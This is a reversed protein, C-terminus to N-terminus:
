EYNKFLLQTAMESDVPKSILYGQVFECKLERLQELQANTEVGEAVVDMGLSHALTVIMQVTENHGSNFGLRNVFSRDIKLTDIPFEHLRSLSSYGTGFDDICLGLGLEKLQNLLKTESTAADLICSETIELKLSCSPLETKPLIKEILELLNVQKLQIASVNVNMVLSPAQPFQSLWINLQSCASQLVWQGLEQILGTEEAVPIFEIPSIWGRKPHYWRVLAEFGSLRSTALSIIPQYYLCFEQQEIARRLDNELQLATIMRTQMRRDFVVYCGKGQSKAHYMASDADRLLEEPQQYNMTSLTIGISTGTRVEYDNLLFPETLQEQIRQAVLTAEQPNEMEELLIAFEDGGFRAVTDTSRVCTQLRRAVSKLLEDGVLHGFSDNVVKFRDLDLFLLAYLYKSHREALKIAHELMKILWARNPLGTLSDHVADHQLQVKARVLQIQAEQLEQLSKELQNAKNGERIESQKLNHYLTANELAIAAQSCLINLVKLRDGPFAGRTLNNELYLIGILKSQNLIPTCLVSVPQNKIIYPDAAFNTESTANDLIIPEFTRGVSNIISVPIEQSSAVPISQLVTVDFSGSVFKAEILLNELKESSPLLLYGKEAGANEVIVRILTSLLKDLQIEKSIAQSAKLVTALDLTESSETNRALFIGANQHSLKETKIPQKYERNPVLTLLEPYNKSLDQVKATAGWRAYNYYADKLYSRAIKEKGWELYFTAALQQALAEENIYENERALKIARDYDDMAEIYQGLVRHREAEVLYFKHLHNMPSTKAWKKMKRQNANVKKMLRKQESQPASVYVALQALSDYFHFIPVSLTAIEGDIYKEAMAANKVAQSYQGFLYCLILKHWYLDFLASTHNAKLLLPLMIKEDYNEGSLCCPNETVELLNLVVQRYLKHLRLVTEQRLNSIVDSYTAMKRDLETLERGIFYSHYCHMYAAYAAFELDGTELGSTYAELLPKLGERVHEQWHRIFNNFVMLTRAKLEKANFKEVLNLALKGFQYGAKVDGLVGCLIVGYGAYGYTSMAANGHKVSWTVGKFTLFPTLEPVASFSSSSAIAIIQGAALKYPDTMEPLDILSDIQKGRLALKTGSLALLIRLKSPKKPLNVGLLQLVKKATEVALLPQGKAIHAYIKVEYVKVRDLLTQAQQLVLDSLQEMREFNGSLYATKAAALYLDFTLDYQRQWCDAALLEIGKSFYAFAATYATSDKAKRGAILNLQALRDLETQEGISGVGINLQNVIAFIKEEREAPPTDRLLLQGIKLHTSQKEEEPILFYAAQQVRDHLFRYPVSLSLPPHPSSIPPPSSNHIIFQSNDESEQFFKYIESIPLVFGEQLAKWLEAATERLSKEYVIAVTALDFQNGICAALKLVKRTTEPLKQLRVAMFEVIDDSISLLRVRAFDCQWCDYKPTPQGISRRFSTQSSARVYSILGEQHLSKLFQTTFFPNGKTKQVVLKTLPLALEESCSLTDAILRNLSTEDLPALTIQNVATSNDQKEDIAKGIEELTLILPHVPNVENDRYAGILLLYRSDTESILLQILRLSASDVWQLDDLFIVLPHEAATFVRIFKGFILNFRNQSANAELHTVPPQKGIIRELEPIMDIIVQGNEGLAELLNAKWGQIGSTCETLLQRMLDRFAEVLASFPINRQFQDFKGKIFYGRQRVIPKHIEEILATKGIGSFGAVLMMETNGQSVREFAALLTKLERERGYLKEPIVFRESIDKVGLVFPVIRGLKKWQQRCNELDYRLGFATQYRDEATKAMLKLIIDNVIQPIESNLERPPTPKRAIHCHVLEMPDNSQFPLQSTLLQYFTVGLSYFDTRYDIGRNMRGTQEPSMYALTGELLNPNQLLQNERPLLSAISFDILKVKKTDPNILINQPKIDKHIIRNQYLKELLRTIQIAINLFDRLFLVKVPHEGVIKAQTQTGHTDAYEKLSIGGFDEMVLALSNRYNELSYPRVISEIYLNKTVIYQNRFQIIESLTPYELELLKIVVPKQDLIRQGRYVLTRSGEYIKDFLRYGPLM